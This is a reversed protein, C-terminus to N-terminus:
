KGDHNKYMRLRRKSNPSGVTFISLLDLRNFIGALFSHVYPDIWANDTTTCTSSATPYFLDLPVKCNEFLNKGERWISIHCHQGNGAANEQVM